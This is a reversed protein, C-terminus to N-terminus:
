ARYIGEIKDKGLIHGKIEKYAENLYFGAKLNPINDLAYIKVEYVHDKDPPTPGGYFIAKEKPLGVFKSAWSNVGQVINKDIRSANEKLEVYNKPIVAIWHIWSFGSVPIADYDQMVVLFSKTGDPINEWRLKLSKSPMKDIWLDGHKGFEDKIYGGEISDSKLTFKKNEKM